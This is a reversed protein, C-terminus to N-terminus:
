LMQGEATAMNQVMWITEVRIHHLKWACVGLGVTCKTQGNDDRSSTDIRDQDEEGINQDDVRHEASGGWLLSFLGKTSTNWVYTSNGDEVHGHDAQWQHVSKPLMGRRKHVSENGINIQEDRRHHIGYDVTHLGLLNAFGHDFYERRLENLSKENYRKKGHDRQSM